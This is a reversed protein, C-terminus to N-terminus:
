ETLGLGQTIKSVAHRSLAKTFIDALNCASPVYTFQLEKERVMDTTKTLTVASLNNVRIKPTSHLPRNVGSLFNKMWVAQKGAHVM